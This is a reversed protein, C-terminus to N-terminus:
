IYFRGSTESNQLPMKGKDSAVSFRVRTHSRVDDFYPLSKKKKLADPQTKTNIGFRELYKRFFWWPLDPYTGFALDMESAIISGPTKTSM